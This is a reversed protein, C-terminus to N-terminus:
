PTEGQLVGLRRAFEPLALAVMGEAPPAGDTGPPSGFWAHRLVAAYQSGIARLADAALPEGGEADPRLVEAADPRSKLRGEKGLRLEQWEHAHSRAVAMVWTMPPGFHRDYLPATRWLEALIEELLAAAAVQGLTARLVAAHIWPGVYGIFEPLVSSDGEAM